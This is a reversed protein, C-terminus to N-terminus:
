TIFIVTPADGDVRAAIDIDCSIAMCGPSGGEMGM